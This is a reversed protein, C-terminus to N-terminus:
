NTISKNLFSALLAQEKAIKQAQPLQLLLSLFPFVQTNSLPEISLGQKIDPGFAIFIAKMADNEKVDFGHTAAGTYSFKEVFTAPAKANIIMDPVVNNQQNFHWHEPFQGQQYVDYLHAQRHQSLHSRVDNLRKANDDYIYLQTQGNIVHLDPFPKLLRNRNIQSGENIDIMGHDSVLVINPTVKTKTQIDIVLQGILADIQSVAQALQESHVGYRHGISDITSFYSLILGPRQSAPLQLWKIIQATKTQDSTHSNYPFYYSPLQQEIKAESEPWFYIASTIGHQEALTWIPKATLWAHNNKGDGLAYTKKLGRHYFKNHVIGHNAPYVGTAITLHNPFTKSPFVPLLGKSSVGKTILNSLHKPKFRTLYDYAFGDISIVIVPNKGYVNSTLLILLLILLRM